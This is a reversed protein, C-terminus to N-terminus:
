REVSLLYTLFKWIPPVVTIAWIVAGFAFCIFFLRITWKKGSNQWIKLKWFINPACQWWGWRMCSHSCSCTWHHIQPPPAIQGRGMVRKSKKKKKKKGCLDSMYASPVGVGFYLFIYPSFIHQLGGGGSLLMKLPIKPMKDWDFFGPDPVSRQSRGGRKVFGPDEASTLPLLGAKYQWSLKMHLM